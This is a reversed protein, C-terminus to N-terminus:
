GLGVGERLRNRPRPGVPRKDTEVLSLYSKTFHTQRAMRALSVGAQERASRLDAGKTM